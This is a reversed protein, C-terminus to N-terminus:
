LGPTSYAYNFRGNPAADGNLAFDEIQGPRQMNDAWKFELRVPKSADRLGLDSRRIALEMECGKVKYRVSGARHWNWSGSNKELVGAAARNVMFNYGHWNTGAAGKVNLLLWMWNTGTASTISAKTRVNFYVNRSDRAVKAAVLDNRGSNNVYHEVNNWGPHDRRALSAVVAEVRGQVNHVARRSDDIRDDGAEIGSLV